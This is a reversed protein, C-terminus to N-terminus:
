RLPLNHVAAKIGISPAKPSLTRGLKVRLIYGRTKASSASRNLEEAIEFTLSSLAPLGAGIMM